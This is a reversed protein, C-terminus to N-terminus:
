SKMVCSLKLEDSTLGTDTFSFRNLEDYVFFIRLEERDVEMDQYYYSDITEEDIFDYDGLVYEEEYNNNVKFKGYESYKTLNRQNLIIQTIFKKLDNNCFMENLRENDMELLLLYIYQELDDCSYDNISDNILHIILNKLNYTRYVTEVIDNNTM